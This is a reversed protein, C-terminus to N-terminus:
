REGVAVAVLERKRLRKKRKPAEQAERIRRPDESPQCPGCVDEASTVSKIYGQGCVRCRRAGPHEWPFPPERGRLTELADQRDLLRAERHARALDFITPRKDTQRAAHAKNRREWLEPAEAVTGGSGMRYPWLWCEVIHCREVEAANYCVCDLCFNRIATSCTAVEDPQRPRRLRATIKRQGALERDLRGMRYPWLWCDTATCRRVEGTEYGVCELCRNRIAVSRPATEGAERPRKVVCARNRDKLGSKM